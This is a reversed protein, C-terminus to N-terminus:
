EQVNGVRIQRKLNVRRKEKKSEDSGIKLGSKAKALINKMTPVPSARSHEKTKHAEGQASGSAEGMHSSTPRLSKAFGSLSSMRRSQKKNVDDEEFVSKESFESNNRRPFPTKVQNETKVYTEVLPRESLKLPPPAHRQAPITTRNPFSGVKAGALFVRRERAVAEKKIPNQGWSGYHSQRAMQSKQAASHVGASRKQRPGSPRGVDPSPERPYRTDITGDLPSGPDSYRLNIRQLQPHLRDAQVALSQFGLSSQGPPCNAQFSQRRESGDLLKEESGSVNSIYSSRDQESVATNLSHLSGDPSLPSVNYQHHTNKGSPPTLIPSVESDGCTELRLPKDGPGNPRLFAIEDEENSEQFNTVISPPRVM